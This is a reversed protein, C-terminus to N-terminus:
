LEIGYKSGLENLGEITDARMELGYKLQKAKLELGRQGPIRVPNEDNIARSKLSKAKFNEMEALFYSEGSFKSPNIVQVFASAGWRGPESTRGYGGLASTMAEIMIGLAFGKYGSDMGGLPLITAPDDEFFTTPDTTAEGQATLLWPHELNQANNNKQHILGNSTASMSVDIIIPNSEAPIGLALPNPSYVGTTGGFPAVTANDPDSCSVIIMNGNKTAEEMYAALCGIHSSKQIAITGVGFEQAMASCKKIAEDILWPGPLYKGNWLESAPTKNLIDYTGQKEMSGKVIHEVYPMVLHLGHTRHGLLEGELLIKSIIQIKDEEVELKSFLSVLFDFANTSEIIEQNM